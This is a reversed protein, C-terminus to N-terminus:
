RFMHTTRRRRKRPVGKMRKDRSPRARSTMTHTAASNPPSTAPVCTCTSTSAEADRSTDANRKVRAYRNDPTIAATEEGRRTVSPSSIASVM